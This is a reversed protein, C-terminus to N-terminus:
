LEAEEDALDRAPDGDPFEGPSAFTLDEPAATM